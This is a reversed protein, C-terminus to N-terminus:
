SRAEHPCPSAMGPPQCPEVDSASGNAKHKRAPARKAAKEPKAHVIERGAVAPPDTPAHRIAILAVDDGLGGGTHAALDREIHHLLAEPTCDTWQAAREAFPYFTGDRDRAEIVGDTYLLLTRGSGFPLVDLTYDGPDTMGVGLPPAPHLDPVIVTNGPGLLLPAPHGCSTMRIVPEEDPIELLLATVFREGAEDEPEFGALYRTVSRELAAALAPLAAHQHAAERFAGLLLAAEGIAPLGKGRVDGIMVRAARDTRAAAYLDGGIEAQDEAALYLCALQLPGLRSPLPWLLVHQAAEAVSRVQALVRSHRDRVVCFLVVLASLLAISFAQVLSNRSAPVGFHWGIFGQAVVALAGIGGTAWRGAGFWAAIAPAIVLLPSLVIDVPLVADVVTIVVILAIPIVLSHWPQRVGAFRRRFM